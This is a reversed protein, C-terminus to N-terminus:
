FFDLREEDFNCKGGQSLTRFTAIKPVPIKQFVSLDQPIEQISDFRVEVLDAGISASDIGVNVADEASQESIAACIM